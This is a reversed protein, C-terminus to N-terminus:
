EIEKLIKKCEDKNKIFIDIYKFKTELEVRWSICNNNYFKIEQKKENFFYYKKNYIIYSTNLNKRLFQLFSSEKLFINQIEKSSKIKKNKIYFNNSYILKKRLEIVESYYIGINKLSEFSNIISFIIFLITFFRIIFVKLKKKDNFSLYFDILLYICFLYLFLNSVDNICIFSLFIYFIYFNIIVIFKKFFEM